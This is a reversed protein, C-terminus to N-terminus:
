ATLPGTPCSWGARSLPRRNWSTSQTHTPKSLSTPMDNDDKWNGIDPLWTPKATQAIHGSLSATASFALRCQMRGVMSHFAVSETRHSPSGERQSLLALGGVLVGLLSCLSLSDAKSFYRGWFPAKEKSM